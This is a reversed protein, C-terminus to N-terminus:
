EAPSINEDVPEFGEFGTTGLVLEPAGEVGLDYLPHKTLNIKEGKNLLDVLKNSVRIMVQRGEANVFVLQPLGKKGISAIKGDTKVIKYKLEKLIKLFDELSGITKLSNKVVFDSFKNQKM